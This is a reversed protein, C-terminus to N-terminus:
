LVQICSNFRLKFKRKSEELLCRNVKASAKGLIDIIQHIINLYVPRITNIYAADIIAFGNHDTGLRDRICMESGM